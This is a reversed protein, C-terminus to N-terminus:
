CNKSTQQDTNVEFQTNNQIKNIVSKATPCDRSSACHHSSGMHSSLGSNVCNFCRYDNPSDKIPCTRSDHSEACYMCTPSDMKKPCDRHIHGFKLCHFCQQYHCRDSVKCSGSFLFLRGKCDNLIHLRLQPSVKIAVTSTHTYKRFYVIELVSGAEVLSKVSENKEIITKWIHDKVLDRQAMGSLDSDEENNLSFDVPVNHITLKPLMKEPTFIEFCWLDSLEKLAETANEKSQKNPFGLVFKGTKPNFHSFAIKVNTLKESIVRRLQYWEETNLILKKDIVPRFHLVHKQKQDSSSPIVKRPPPNNSRKRALEVNKNVVAAAYTNASAEGVIVADSEDSSLTTDSELTRPIKPMAAGSIDVAKRKIGKPTHVSNQSVVANLKSSIANSIMLNMDEFIKKQFDVLCTNVNKIIKSELNCSSSLNSLTCNWCIWWCSPNENMIVTTEDSVPRKICRNHYSDDCMCCKLTSVKLSKELCSCCNQDLVIGRKSDDVDKNVCDAEFNQKKDSYNSINLKLLM